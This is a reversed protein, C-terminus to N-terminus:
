TRNARKEIDDLTIDGNYINKFTHLPGKFKYFNVSRIRSDKSNYTVDYFDITEFSKRIKVLVNRFYDSYENPKTEGQKIEKPKLAVLADVKKGKIQM